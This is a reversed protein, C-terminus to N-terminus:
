GIVIKWCSHYDRPGSNVRSIHKPVIVLFEDNQIAKEAKEAIHNRMDKDQFPNHGCKIHFIILM